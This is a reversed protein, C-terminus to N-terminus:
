FSAFTSITCFWFLNHLAQGCVYVTMCHMMWLIETYLNLCALLFLNQLELISDTICLICHTIWWSWHQNLPLKGLYAVTAPFIFYRMMWYQRRQKRAGTTKSVGGHSAGSLPRGLEQEGAESSGTDEWSDEGAALQWM